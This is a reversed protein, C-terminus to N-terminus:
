AAGGEDGAGDDTTEDAGASSAPVSAAALEVEVHKPLPNDKSGVKGYGTDAASNDKHLKKQKYQEWGDRSILLERGKAGRDPGVIGLAQMQDCIKAARTYGLSLRRQLLSTSARNLELFCEVAQEFVEDLEIEKEDGNGAGEGATAQAAIRLVEDSYLPQAQGRAFEVVGKIDKDDLYVGKARKLQSTGPGVYFMDGKGALKAADGDELVIRSDIKSNVKFCIRCPMNSKILGTVVDASPRQTALIVHIGAARAKQALRAIAQEIEKGACMMLDAFEDVIVVIYPMSEKYFEAPEDQPLRQIREEPTMRNFTAINRVGVKSMREYREEMKQVAWALVGAALKMDTVVPTLLHPIDKFDTMEVQKPDVLVLRVEQPKKLLLVSLIISNICVSKGSGTTGAILLHPMTALDAVLPVGTADRGLILPLTPGGNRYTPSEIIPRMTVTHADKNPIEIGITDKGPLPAIVRVGFESKMAMALNDSLNHIRQVKIGPDISLEFMTVAPGSQISVLRSGIKFEWLTEVLKAARDKLVDSSIEPTAEKTILLDLPPLKYGEPFKKEPSGSAAPAAEEAPADAGDLSKMLKARAQEREGEKAARDKALKELAKAEKERREAEKAEKAYQEKAEEERRQRDQEAAEAQRMAEDRRRQAEDAEVEAKTPEPEDVKKKEAKEAAKEAKAAEKAAEKAAKDLIKERTNKAPAEVVDEEMFAKQRKTNTSPEPAVAVRNLVPAPAPDEPLVQAIPAIAPMRVSAPNGSTAVAPRLSPETAAKLKGVASDVAWRSLKVCGRGLIALISETLSQALMLGALVGCMVLVLYVGVPGFYDVLPRALYAGGLLGGPGAPYSSALVENPKAKELALGTTGAWCAVVLLLLLAGATRLFIGATSRAATMLVGFILLCFTFVWAGGGLLAFLNHAMRAGFIGCINSVHGGSSADYDLLDAPSYSILSLGSFVGLAALGLGTVVATTERARDQEM